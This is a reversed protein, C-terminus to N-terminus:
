ESLRTEWALKAACHQDCTKATKSRKENIHCIVCLSLRRTKWAKQQPNM